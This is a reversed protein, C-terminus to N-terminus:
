RRRLTRVATIFRERSLPDIAAFEAESLTSALRITTRWQDLATTCGACGALHREIAAADRHDLAGDVYASLTEVVDICRQDDGPEHANM